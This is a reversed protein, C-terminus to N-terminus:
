STRGTGGGCGSCNCSDNEAGYSHGGHTLLGELLLGDASSVLAATRILADDEPDIGTRHDGCDIEILIKLPRPRGASFRALATVIAENDVLLKLDAGRDTLKAARDFKNPSLCVAYVIDTFGAALFYEAERLTSM